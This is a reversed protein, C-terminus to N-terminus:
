LFYGTIYIATYTLSGSTKFYFNGSADLTVIGAADIQVNAAQTLQLISYYYSSNPGLGAYIGVSASKIELLVAVAVAGAPVGFVTRANVLGNNATTKADGDWSTSTLPPTCPFFAAVPQREAGGASPHLM